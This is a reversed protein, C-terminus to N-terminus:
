PGTSPLVTLKVGMDAFDPPFPAGVADEVALTWEPYQGSVQVATMFQTLGSTIEFTVQTGAPAAALQVQTGAPTFCGNTTLTDVVPATFIFKDGPAECPISDTMVAQIAAAQPLTFSCTAPAGPTAADTCSLDATPATPAVPKTVSNTAGGSDTVTLMANYTQATAYAHVPNQDTSLNGDGIDWQWAKISGEADHSSDSFTCSLGTCTVGFNAVPPTNTTPPPGTVDGGGNNDGGGCAVLVLTGAALIWM